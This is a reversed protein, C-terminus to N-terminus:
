GREIGEENQLYKNKMGKFLSTSLLPSIKCFHSKGHSHIPCFLSFMSPVPKSAINFPKSCPKMTFFQQLGFYKNLYTASLSSAMSWFFSKVTGATRYSPPWWFAAWAYLEIRIEIHIQWFFLLLLVFLFFFSILLFCFVVFFCFNLLLFDFKITTFAFYFLVFCFVFLLFLFCSVGLCDMSIRPVSNM